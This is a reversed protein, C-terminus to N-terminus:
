EPAAPLTFHFAAGQPVNAVAWIRGGQAEVISRCIALGMGLGGPKTTYFPDFAREINTSTLGPGSDKVAVLVGHPQAQATTIVLDRSGDTIAGMAQIANAMLNIIVQQLQVRDGEIRPLHEALHVQVSVGNKVAEGHGLAIVERVAENVDVSDKRPPAKKFLHQIRDVVERTRTGAQVIRAFAERAEQLNPPRASLWRMGAQANTVSAAIPQKVEHAISATMQGMTEVRNAHALELQMARAEAEVRKRETLELVFTVSRDRRNDLSAAGVLVPVRSGDKHLYEKEYPHATGTSEIEALARTTTDFWEPPTLDNWRVRGAALDARDYGVMQLFADNAEIIDGERTSIFIGIINADVLRRIRAEREALDRYLRANELAIAAQSALLKLVAIRAPAFVRAMLNNELYLAGVLKAQTLLSLGLISRSQRERIYRDGAFPSRAAADDLIVSEGTRLVYQLVSEPLLAATMPQDLLQVIVENGRTVAEAEIRPETERPLILLGREAGAQEIATRMLTDILKELVIEGSVAQSVTIVTALDLHELPAGITGTPVPATQQETRLHPYLQDLQSVKGDAGWRLYCYRANRLYAQSITEFDRAAYFRAALESAIAENHVFENQRASRIAVEYLREADLERGEIRAIEAGILAACNGFNEPCHKTWIQLQWHHAALADVHERRQDAPAAGCSAARSLASYFHFEATESVSPSAPLLRRACSLAEIAAAYKGAFFHGELKRLWYCYEATALDPNESFRREIGREDFEEDDFSGFTPTLGRLTRILALQIACRDVVLGFRVKQAFTLANKAERQAEVLPDGAALLNTTLQTGCYAAFTLDGMKNATEFAGLLLDRGARVHETWPLVQNGFIMSTRGQFRTLRHREVLDNGLWGFRYGARFDGFRPGAIVGLRVFAVCSTESNGHELSLNVARCNSLALLNADLHMAAPGLNMLVDMTMLCAADTMFPLEILDEITRSGLRSWIRDYELRVEEDTPRASWDIGQHRLYDLGVAITRSSQGLTVYLDMRLCAVTAQQVANAARTSLAALRQEAEALAGTLFECEARNLELAFVLDHRHEWSDGPLLDVGAILYALASAYATSAKARGAALLNLEALRVKEDRAAILVAGRNLQNVIEFIAESREEAPIHILSYAAEQVRDHTFRYAGPQRQVLEQHAAPWLAAHVAEDSRGLVLALTALAAGNGLCALLRLADQTDAPLRALKGVM